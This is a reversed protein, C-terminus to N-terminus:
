RAKRKSLSAPKSDTKAGARILRVERNLELCTILEVYSATGGLTALTTCERQDTAPFDRWQRVLLDRAQYESDTCRKADYGLTPDAEAAERCM